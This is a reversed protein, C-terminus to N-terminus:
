GLHARPTGLTSGDAQGLERAAEIMIDDLFRHLVTSVFLMAAMGHDPHLDEFARLHYLLNERLKKIEGLFDCLPDQNRCPGASTEDAAQTACPKRLTATLDDLLAPIRNSIASGNSSNESSQLSPSVQQLWDEHIIERRSELFEALCSNVSKPHGDNDARM